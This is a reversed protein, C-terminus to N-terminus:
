IIFSNIKKRTLGALLYAAKDSVQTAGLETAELAPNPRDLNLRQIGTTAPVEVHQSSGIEPLDAM